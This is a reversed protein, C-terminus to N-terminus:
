PKAPRAPNAPNAVAPAVPIAMAQGLVEPLIVHNAPSQTLQRVQETVGPEGAFADCAYAGYLEAGEQTTEYLMPIFFIGNATFYDAVLRETPSRTQLCITAGDLESASTVGLETAVLIRASAQQTVAQADSFTPALGCLTALGVIGLPSGLNTTM